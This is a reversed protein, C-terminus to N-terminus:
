FLSVNSFSYAHISLLFLLLGLFWFKRNCALTSIKGLFMGIVGFYFFGIAGGVISNSGFSKSLIMIPSILFLVVDAELFRSIGILAFAFLIGILFGISEKRIM